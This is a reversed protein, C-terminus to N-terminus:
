VSSQAPLHKLSIAPAALTTPAQAFKLNVVDVSPASKSVISLLIQDRKTCTTVLIDM